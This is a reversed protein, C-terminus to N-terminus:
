KAKKLPIILQELYKISIGQNKSIESMSLPGQGYNKTLELMLRMGYRGRTSLKM